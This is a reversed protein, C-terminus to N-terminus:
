SGGAALSFPYEAFGGPSLGSVYRTHGLLHPWCPHELFLPCCVGSCLACPLTSLRFHRNEHPQIMPSTLSPLSPLAPLMSLPPHSPSPLYRLLSIDSTISLLHSFPLFSSPPSPTEPKRRESFGKQENTQGRRLRLRPVYVRPQRM